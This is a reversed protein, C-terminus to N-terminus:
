ENKSRVKLEKKMIIPFIITAPIMAICTGFIVGSVGLATKKALYLAIIINLVAAISSIKLQIDVLGLGNLFYSYNNCHISLITYIAVAIILKGEIIIDKDIWVLLIKNVIVSLVGTFIFILVTFYNIKKLSSKIWEMRKENLAKSVASWFPTIVISHGLLIISFVKSVLNYKTVSEPGFVQTIMLNQTTFLVMAILQVLFFKFGISTLDRIYEKEYYKISFKLDSNKRFVYLSIFLNPLVLCIGYIISVVLLKYEFNFRLVLILAIYVFIQNLLQSLSVVFSKQLSYLISNILSFIFNMTVFFLSVMMIIALNRNDLGKVNFFDNWPIFSFTILGLLFVISGISIAAIYATSVLYKIKNKDRHLIEVLKNRLGNGIGIDFFSIWSIVNLIITWIGFNSNGLYKLLIPVVLLSLFISFPKIMATAFINKVINRNDSM